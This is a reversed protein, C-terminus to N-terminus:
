AQSVISVSASAGIRTAGAEVMAKAAAFDRIGGSAKIGLRGGVTQHMIRIAEVTAGGSGFGTSTKVYGAGAEESLRSTLRIEEDTLFCTELIVKVCVTDPVANVVAAIDARVADVEGSKLASINLVMDVETAGEEVALRAEEAKARTTTAGLPFGVVTCVRVSSGELLRSALPVFWPNVCVAAFGHEKAEACLTSVQEATVTPNLATHDIVPALESPRTVIM